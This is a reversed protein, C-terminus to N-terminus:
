YKSWISAEHWWLQPQSYKPTVSGHYTCGQPLLIVYLYTSVCLCGYPSIAEM